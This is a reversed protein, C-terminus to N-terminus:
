KVGRSEKIQKIYEEKSIPAGARIMDNMIKEETPTLKFGESAPAKKGSVDLSPATDKRPNRFKTPFTDRVEREVAAFIEQPNRIGEAILQNALGDAFAQMKRDETYWQNKAVWADFVPNTPQVATPAPQKTQEKIEDIRDRIEEAKVLDGEELAAKRENRLERLAREYASQEIKSNHQALANMGKELDKVKRHYSDIKDFLSKRDMFDEATRWKKGENAPDAKFEEEPKWGHELATQEVESLQPPTTETKVEQNQESM